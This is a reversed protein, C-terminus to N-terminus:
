CHQAYQCLIARSDAERINTHLTAPDPNPMEYLNQVIITADNIDSSAQLRSLATTYPATTALEYWVFDLQTSLAYPSVGKNSAFDVLLTWRPTEWQAIGQSTGGGIQPQHPKVGQSEEWFNGVLAAAQISSLGKGVFYSYAGHRCAELNSPSCQQLLQDLASYSRPARHGPGSVFHTAAQGLLDHFALAHCGSRRKSNGVAGSVESGPEEREGVTVCRRTALPAPRERWPLGPGVV